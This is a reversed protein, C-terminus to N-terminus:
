AGLAFSCNPFRCPPACGKAAFCIGGHGMATFDAKSLRAGAALRPLVRDFITAGAFMVCAPLGAIAAGSKLYALMFMAGPFVPAGYSVIEGGGREVARRIAGPTRDDPDVSMGGTCLILEAGAAEARAIAAATEEMDDGTAAEFVTEIGFAHLKERVVPTFTDEIRGEAIENGTCLIAARRLTYPLLRLLPACAAKRADLLREEAILLPIAKMGALLEGTKVASCDRRTAVALGEIANIAALAARDVRFLGDIEAFHEIKGESPGRRAINEGRFLADLAEAAEDEHVFGEPKEWVYLQEKGMSLLAPIDEPRVIHGKKFRAGKEVGRVVRTLDHCLMLGAAEATKVTRM